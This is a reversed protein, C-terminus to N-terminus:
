LKVTFYLFVTTKLTYPTAFVLIFRSNKLIGLLQNMWVGVGFNLRGLDMFRGVFDVWFGIEGMLCEKDYGM